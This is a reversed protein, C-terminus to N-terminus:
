GPGALALIEGFGEEVFGILRRHDFVEGDCNVGVYATGGHSHLVVMVPSGPLPGFYYIGEVLHGLFKSRDPLGPVNSITVDTRNQMGTFLPTLLAAPARNVIPLVLSFFDLAPEGSVREVTERLARMREVPDVISSPASLFAPAFKNGGKHDGDQRVSVPMNIVVDGVRAGAAEHYRRLGGLIACVYADNITGGVSKAAAKLAALDVSLVGYRWDTRTGGGLLPSGSAPPPALVRGVSGVFRVASKPDRVASAGTSVAKSVLGPVGRARAVAQEAAVSWGGDGSKPVTPKADYEAAAAAPRAHLDALLQVSGHGDMLCHHVVLFYASRGGELGEVFVGLWPPRHPDLPKLAWAQAVDLLQDMTGPAPLQVRRLHHDLDFAPDDVWVPPGVPLAPEVVRQKFRPYHSLGYAHWRHVDEWTPTGALVELVGGQTSNEPHRNARWMTSELETMERGGGWDTENDAM